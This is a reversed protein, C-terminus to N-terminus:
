LRHNRHQRGDERLFSLFMLLRQIPAMAQYSDMGFTLLAQRAHTLFSEFALLKHEKYNSAFPRQADNKRRQFVAETAFFPPNKEDCRSPHHFIFENCCGLSFFTM